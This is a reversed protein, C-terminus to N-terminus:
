IEFNDMFNYKINIVTLTVSVSKYYQILKSEIKLRKLYKVYLPFPVQTILNAANNTDQIRDPKKFNSDWQDWNNDDRDALDDVNEIGEVDLSYVIIRHQGSPDWADEFFSVQQAATLVTTSTSQFSKSRFQSGEQIYAWLGIRANCIWSFGM